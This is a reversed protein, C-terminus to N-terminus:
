FIQLHITNNFLKEIASAYIEKATIYENPNLSVYKDITVGSNAELVLLDGNITEIIDVSAFKLNTERCVQKALNVLKESLEEDELRKAIAGQSLNFKWDYQFKEHKSLIIDYKSDQLKNQFYCNNFELLLERITKKGDGIVIPLYKRYVLKSEGDLMIVRYEHKINYFPCISISFNKIFLRDLIKDIENIDTINFVDNGCMGNNPKIVINQNQKLFYDKVYEYTNCAIAYDNYNDKNYVIKHEIVPIGKAKLVEYLAFKDDTILGIGHGNLDFKYGCIYRTKGDKELMIIWDKSLLKFEINNENCIEQIIKQM